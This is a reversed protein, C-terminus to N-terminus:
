GTPATRRALATDILIGLLETYPVGAARWAAPFQSVSTLGPMTNVENLVVETVGNAGAHVFFDVRILGACGLARFARVAADALYWGTDADVPAPIGFKTSGDRYKATASFFHHRHADMLIELPPGAEVRGDPHELVAIDIERGPVAPEVLVKTDGAFATAVAQDLDAWDTVRTVGVSSGGSAPKVFVPLGLRKREVDTVTDEPDRLVLGDAVAIGEAKLLAKTIEKDMGTAGALVGAGVYPVGLLDLLGAVTGDEGLAGHLVPFVVDVSGLAEIAAAMSAARTSVDNSTLAVLQDADLEAPFEAVTAVHWAGDQGIRVPVARFRGRDLNDLVSVASRCSVDYETNQGGFVVGVVIETM